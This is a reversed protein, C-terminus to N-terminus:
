NESFIQESSSKLDLIKPVNTTFNRAQRGKEVVVARNLVVNVRVILSLRSKFTKVAAQNLETPLAGTQQAPPRPNM